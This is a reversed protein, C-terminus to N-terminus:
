SDPPSARADLHQRQCLYVDCLLLHLLLDEELLHAQCYPGGSDRVGQAEKWRCRAYTIHQGFLYRVGLQHLPALLLNLLLDGELQHAQRHHGVRQPRTRGSNNPLQMVCADARDHDCTRQQIVCAEACDPYNRTCLVKVVPTCLLM